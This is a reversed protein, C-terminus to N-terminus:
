SQIRTNKNKSYFGKHRKTALAGWRIYCGWRIYKEEDIEPTLKSDVVLSSNHCFPCRLNCGKTFVICSVVDPFDLLTLKQLGSIKM